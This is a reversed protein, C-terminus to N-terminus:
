GADANLSKLCRKFEEESMSVSAAAPQHILCSMALSFLEDLEGSDVLKDLDLLGDATKCRCRIAISNGGRVEDIEIDKIMIAALIQTIFAVLMEPQKTLRETITTVLKDYHCERGITGKAQRYGRVAQKIREPDHSKLEEAGERLYTMLTEEEDRLGKNEPGTFGVHIDVMSDTSNFTFLIVDSAKVYLYATPLLFASVFVCTSSVCETVDCVRYLSLTILRRRLDISFEFTQGNAV